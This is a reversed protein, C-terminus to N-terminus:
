ISRKRGPCDEHAVARPDDGAVPQQCRNCAGDEISGGCAAHEIWDHRVPYWHRERTAAGRLEGPLISVLRDCKPCCGLPM